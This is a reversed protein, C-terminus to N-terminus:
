QGRAGESPALGALAAWGQVTGLGGWEWNLSHFLVAPTPYPKPITPSCGLSDVPCPWDWGPWARPLEWRPDSESGTQWLSDRPARTLAPGRQFPSSSPTPPGRLGEGHKQDLLEMKELVDKRMQSFRARAEQRCRLILRYEYNGTSVRYLPEGLAQARPFCTLSGPCAAPTSPHHCPPQLSGALECGGWWVASKLAAM